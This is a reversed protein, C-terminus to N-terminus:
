LSGIYFILTLIYIQTKAAVLLLYIIIPVIILINFSNLIDFYLTSLFLAAILFIQKNEILLIALLLLSLNFM